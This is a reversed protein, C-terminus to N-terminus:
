KRICVSNRGNQKVYYLNKDAKDIWDNLKDNDISGVVGGISITVVDSDSSDNYPLAMAEITERITEGIQVAENLNNVKMYCLFEEGGYRGIFFDKYILKRLTKAIIRLCDDGKIHGWSDNYQKFFDIDIILIADLLSDKNEIKESLMKYIGRRNYIETLEDILSVHTLEANQEKIRKLEVNSEFIDNALKDSLKILNENKYKEKQRHIEVALIELKQSLNSAEIEKEKLHYSKYYSLATEYEKKEEHYVSLHKYITSIKTELGAEIANDLAEILHPRPNRGMAEDLFSFNILLEILYFKNNIKNYKQLASIYYDKAKEFKGQMFMVRGFKTETEAQIILDDEDKVINHCNQIQILSDEYKEQMHYIESVNLYITAANSNLNNKLAIELSKIYYDMAEEYNGAERYVEGANVLLASEYYPTDVSDLLDIAVMYNELASSYDGFYFYVIGILNRIKIIGLNNNEKTYIDLAKFAHNLGNAYDSMVRCAYTMCFYAGAKELVLNHKNAFGLVEEAIYYSKQPNELAMKKSTELMEKIKNVM